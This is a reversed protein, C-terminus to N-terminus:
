LADALWNLVMKKLGTQLDGQNTEHAGTLCDSGPSSEPDSCMGITLNSKHRSPGAPTTAHLHVDRVPMTKGVCHSRDHAITGNATPDILHPWSVCRHSYHASHVEKWGTSNFPPNQKSPNDQCIQMCAWLGQFPLIVNWAWLSRQFFGFLKIRWRVKFIKSTFICHLWALKVQIMWLSNYKPAHVDFYFMTFGLHMCTDGVELKTCMLVTPLVRKGVMAM